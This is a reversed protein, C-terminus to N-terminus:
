TLGGKINMPFNILTATRHETRQELQGGLQFTLVNVLMFRFGAIGESIGTLDHRVNGVLIIQDIHSTGTLDTLIEEPEVVDTRFVSVPICHQGTKAFQMFILPM